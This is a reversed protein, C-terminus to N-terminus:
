RILGVWLLNKTSSRAVFSPFSRSMHVLIDAWSSHNSVIGAAIVGPKSKHQQNNPPITHWTVTLFGLCFLEARVFFKAWAAVWTSRNKAPVLFSSKCMLYCGILCAICGILKIPLIIVAVVGLRLYEKIPQAKAGELGYQDHRRFPDFAPDSELRGNTNVAATM